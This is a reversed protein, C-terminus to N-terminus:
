TRADDSAATATTPVEVTQETGSPTGADFTLTGSTAAYHTGPEATGAQDAYAVTLPEGLPEGDTTTVRVAVQATEGPDVLVVDAAPAVRLTPAPVASGYLEVDDVAFR